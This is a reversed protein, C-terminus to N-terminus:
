FLVNAGRNDYIKSSSNVLNGLPTQTWFLIARESQYTAAVGHDLNYTGLFTYTTGAAGPYDVFPWDVGLRMFLQYYNSDAYFSPNGNTPHPPHASVLWQGGAVEKQNFIPYAISQDLGLTQPNDNTIEYILGNNFMFFVVVFVAFFAPAYRAFHVKAGGNFIHDLARFCAIAGIVAFPALFILSLHLLRDTGISSALYPVVASAAFLVASALAFARYVRTFKMQTKGILLAIIGVAVFFLSALYFYRAANHVPSSVSTIALYPGQTTLPNFFDALNVRGGFALAEIVSVSGATYLGWALALIAFLLVLVGSLGTSESSMPKGPKRNEEKTQARFRSGFNATTKQLVAHDTLYLIAWASVLLFILLYSTAYHSVAVSLLAVMLLPTKAKRNLGSSSMLLIFMVLFLDALEERATALLNTYFFYFSMFFFCSLAAIRDNNTQKQYIRFLGLPVMSFLIPFVVKFMWNIDMGSIVSFSPPFIVVSAVSNYLIPTSANWFGSGIVSNALYSEVQIDYGWVYPSILSTHFVLSVSIAFIALPYLRAPILKGFGILIAVLGIILLLSIQLSNTNYFNFAYTSFISLFPLLFLCLVPPTQLSSVDIFRPDRFEKDRLYALACLASVTVSILTLLPVISLPRSIGFAQFASNLSLGCLLTLAISVGVSYILSEIEDLKHVNLIRLVLIGPVFLLFASAILERIVPIHFGLADLGIVGWLAFQLCLIATLADKIDWDNVCFPSLIRKM